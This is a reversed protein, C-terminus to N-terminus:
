RFLSALQVELSDKNLHQQTPEAAAFEGNEIGVACAVADDETCSRLANEELLAEEQGDASTAGEAFECRATPPAPEAGIRQTQATSERVSAAAVANLEEASTM